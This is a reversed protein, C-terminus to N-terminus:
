DVVVERAKEAKVISGDARIRLAFVCGTDSNQKRELSAGLHNALQKSLALGIGSGGDKASRCPAFPTQGGPFGQGEDRLEFQLAEGEGTASLLVNKGPPTAEIGNQALNELIFAVLHAVRNPLEGDTAVNMKFNVGRTRALPQVRQAIIEGLEVLSVGYRAGTEDERLVSIVRQIMSQMRCTSAVAQQWDAEGDGNTHSSGHASVFNQLGALPNSLGHILHAAVAGLASTKAALALEQNAKILSETREAVLAHARRLRRFAWGLVVVLIAGGAAFTVAAQTALHRDLRTYEAAISSGEVLFQALGAL